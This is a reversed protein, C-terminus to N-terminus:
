KEPNLIITGPEVAMGKATKRTKYKQRKQLLIKERKKLTTMLLDTGTPDNKAAM